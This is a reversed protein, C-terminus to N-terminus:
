EWPLSPQSSGATLVAHVRGSGNTGEAVPEIPQGPIPAEGDRPRSDAQAVLRRRHRVAEVAPLGAQKRLGPPMRAGDDRAEHRAPGPHRFGEAGRLIAEDGMELLSGGLREGPVFAVGGGRLLDDVPLSEVDQLEQRHRSQVLVVAAGVDRRAQHDGPVRLGAQLVDGDQAALDATRVPDAHQDQGPMGVIEVALGLGLAPAEFDGEHDADIGGAEEGGLGDHGEAVVLQLDGPRERALGEVHDLAQRVAHANRRVCLNHDLAAEQGFDALRFPRESFERLIVPLPGLPVDHLDIRHRVPAIRDKMHDDAAAKLMQQQPRDGPLGRDECRQLAAEGTDLVHM